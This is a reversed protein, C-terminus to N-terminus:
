QVVAPGTMARIEALIAKGVGKLKLMESDTKLQPRIGVKLCM